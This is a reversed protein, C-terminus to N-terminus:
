KREDQLKDRQRRLSGFDDQSKSILAEQRESEAKREKIFIDLKSDEDKLQQIEDQLKREQFLTLSVTTDCFM